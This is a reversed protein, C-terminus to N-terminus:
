ADNKFYENMVRERFESNLEILTANYSYMVNHEVFLENLEVHDDSLNKKNLSQFRSLANSILYYKESKHRIELNSFQSLFQSAKILRLNM